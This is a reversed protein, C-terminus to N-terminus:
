VNVIARLLNNEEKSSINIDIKNNIKRTDLILLQNPKLNYKEGNIKFGFEGNYSYFIDLVNNATYLNINDKIKISELKGRAKDRLMLNFDKVKGYSITQIEGSFEYVEFPKLEIFKENDHTLKLNANLPTIFRNIGTLKTFNSQELEVTASSIRFQFNKQKYDSDEPYIFLETTKGGSWNTTTFEEKGIIKIIKEM